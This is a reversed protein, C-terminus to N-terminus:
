DGHFGMVNSENHALFLEDVLPRVTERDKGAPGWVLEAWARAEKKGILGPTVFREWRSQADTEHRGSWDALLIERSGDVLGTEATFHGVAVDTHSLTWADGSSATVVFCDYLPLRSVYYALPSCLGRRRGYWGVTFLHRPRLGIADLVIRAVLADLQSHNNATSPSVGLSELAEFLSLSQAMSLPPVDLWASLVRHEAVTFFDCSPRVSM